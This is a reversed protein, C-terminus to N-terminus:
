PRVDSGHSSGEDMIEGTNYQHKIQSHIDTQVPM